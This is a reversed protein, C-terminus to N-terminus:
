RLIEVGPPLKESPPIPLIDNLKSLVIEKLSVGDIKLRDFSEPDIEEVDPTKYPQEYQKIVLVRMHGDFSFVLSYSKDWAIGGDESALFYKRLYNM